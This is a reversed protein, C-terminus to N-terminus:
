VPSSGGPKRPKHPYKEAQAVEAKRAAAAPEAIAVNRYSESLSLADHVLDVARGTVASPYALAAREFLGGIKAGDTEVAKTLYSPNLIQTSLDSVIKSVDGLKEPSGKFDVLFAMKDEPKEIAGLVASLQTNFDTGKYKSLTDSAINQIHEKSLGSEKLDEIAVPGERKLWHAAIALVGRQAEVDPRDALKKLAHLSVGTFENNRGYHTSSYAIDMIKRSALEGERAALYNIGSVYQKHDRAINSISTTIQDQVQQDGDLGSLSEMAAAGNDGYRYYKMGISTIDKVMDPWERGRLMELVPAGYNANSTGLKVLAKTSALSKDEAAIACASQLHEKGHSSAIEMIMDTRQRAKLYDFIEPVVASVRHGIMAMANEAAAGEREKIYPLAIKALHPNLAGIRALNETSADTNRAGLMHVARAAQEPQKYALGIAMTSQDDLRGELIDLGESFLAMNNRTIDGIQRSADPSPDSALRKLERRDQFTRVSQTINQLLSPM